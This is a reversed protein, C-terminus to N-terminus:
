FFFNCSFCSVASGNEIALLSPATTDIKPVTKEPVPDMVSPPMIAPVVNAVPTPSSFTALRHFIDIMKVELNGYASSSMSTTNQAMCANHCRQPVRDAIAWIDDICGQYPVVDCCSNPELCVVIEMLRGYLSEKNKRLKRFQDSLKRARWYLAPRDMKKGDQLHLLSCMVAITKADPCRLGIAFCHDMLCESKSDYGDNWLSHWVEETLNHPLNTFNQLPRKDQGEAEMPRVFLVFRNSISGVFIQLCAVLSTLVGCLQLRNCLWSWPVCPSSLFHLCARHLSKKLM